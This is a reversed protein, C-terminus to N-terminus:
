DSTPYGIRMTGGTKVCYRDIGKRSKLRRANGFRRRQRTRNRGLVARGVSKRRVRGKTPICRSSPATNTAAACIRGFSAAKTEGRGILLERSALM